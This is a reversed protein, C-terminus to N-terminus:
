KQPDKGTSGFVFLSIMNVIGSFLSKTKEWIEANGVISQLADMVSQKKDAGKGTGTFADEALKMLEVITKILSPLAALIQLM